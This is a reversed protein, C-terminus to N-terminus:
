LLDSIDDTEIIYYKSLASYYKAKLGPAIPKFLECLDKHLTLADPVFSANYSQNEYRIVKTKTIHVMFSKLIQLKTCSIHGIWTDPIHIAIKWKLRHPLLQQKALLTDLNNSWLYYNDRSDSPIKKFPISLENCAESLVKIAESKNRAGSFSIYNKKGTYNGRLILALTVILEATSLVEAPTSTIFNQIKSM